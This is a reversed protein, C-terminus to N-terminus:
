NSKEGHHSHERCAEDSIQIEGALYKKVIEEVNGSVGTIVEINLENFIELAGVGMGGSIILSVGIDHLFNPLVGPKHGPSLVSESSVIKNNKIEFINFRECYGFHDSVTRGESAVAIKM